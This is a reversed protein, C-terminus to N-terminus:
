VPDFSTLCQSLLVGPYSQRSIRCPWATRRFLYKLVGRPITRRFLVTKQITTLHAQQGLCSSKLQGCVQVRHEGMLGQGELDGLAAALMRCRHTPTYGAFSTPHLSAPQVSYM